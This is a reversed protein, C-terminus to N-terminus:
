PKWKASAAETRQKYGIDGHRFVDAEGTGLHKSLEQVLWALADNQAQTVVAYASAKADFGGVIEIGISDENLPYRDPYAKDAEHAHLNRIRVSYSEGKKFLIDKVATLEGASCTKM